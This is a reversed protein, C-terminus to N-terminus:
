RWLRGLRGVYNWLVFAEEDPHSGVVLDDFHDGDLDGSALVSGFGAGSVARPSIIVRSSSFSPSSSGQQRIRTFTQVAGSNVFGIDAEPAGVALDDIGDRNIDISELVAGFAAGKRLSLLATDRLEQVFDVRWQALGDRFSAEFVKASGTREGEPDTGEREGPSSIVLDACSLGYNGAEVQHGFNEFDAPREDSDAQTIPKGLFFYSSPEGLMVIERVDVVFAAGASVITRPFLEGEPFAFLSELPAGIVLEDRSDCDLDGAALSAGFLDNTESVGGVDEQVISLTRSFDLGDPSGFVIFVAGADRVTGIDEAKAGVALDDYGDGNFDGVALASGFEDGAEAMAPIGPHDQDIIRAGSPSAILIKGARDLGDPDLPAGVVLRDLGDGNFDGFAQPAPFLAFESIVRSTLWQPFVEGQALSGASWFLTLFVFAAWTGTFPPHRDVPASLPQLEPM